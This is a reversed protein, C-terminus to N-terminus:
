NSLAVSVFRGSFLTLAPLWSYTRLLLNRTETAGTTLIFRPRIKQFTKSGHFYIYPSKRRTTPLTSLAHWITNSFCGLASPELDMRTCGANRKQSPFLKMVIDEYGVPPVLSCRICAQSHLKTYGAQWLENSLSGSRVDSLSGFISRM